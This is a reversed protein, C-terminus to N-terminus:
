IKLKKLGKRSVVHGWSFEKEIKNTFEPTQGYIWDWTQLEEAMERARQPLVHSEDFVVPKKTFGIFSYFLSFQIM